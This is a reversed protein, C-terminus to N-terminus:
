SNGKQNNANWAVVDVTILKFDDNVKSGNLSGVGRTSVGPKAGAKLLTEVIRGNPTDLIKAIGIGDNGEMVLSEIMHSVNQLNVTPTPPHDLEGYARNEKIKEKNFVGVERELLSQGYIRGNKNKVEAQLFPGKIKYTSPQGEKEECILELSQHDVFERIYLM